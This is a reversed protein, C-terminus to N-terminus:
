LAACHAGSTELRPLHASEMLWQSQDAAKQYVMKWVPNSYAGPMSDMAELLGMSVQLSELIDSHATKLESM